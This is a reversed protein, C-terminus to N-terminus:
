LKGALQLPNGQKRAISAEFDNQSDNLVEQIKVDLDKLRFPKVVHDRFGVRMSTEINSPTGLATIAIAPVQRPLLPILDWGSEGELQIDCLILDYDNRGVLDVAEHLNEAAHVNYGRQRLLESLASRADPHDDIVLLRADIHKRVHGNISPGSQTEQKAQAVPLEVTFTTGKGPGASWASLNGTFTETLARAITLGLGLGGYKRAINPMGQTFPRFIREVTESDMGIGTDSVKMMIEGDLNKSEISIIGHEPTFKIANRLLNWVIQQFRAPDALILHEQAQLDCKLSLHKQDIDNRLIEITESIKKHADFTELKMALKGRAIRTVDLLDDILRLELELNRRIMNTFMKANDTQVEMDLGDLAIMIPTLPSRLEHSLVAIFEDKARNAEEASRKAHELSEELQRRGTLDQLVKIFGEVKGRESILPRVMGSGWFPRGNKRVRIGETISHGDQMARLVEQEPVGNRRETEGFIMDIQKGVFEEQAYGLVKRVGPNWSTIIRDRNYSFIAYDQISEFIRRLNEGGSLLDRESSGLMKLYRDARRKQLYAFGGIALLTITIVYELGVM